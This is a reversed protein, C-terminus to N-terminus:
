RCTKMWDHPLQAMWDHTGVEYLQWGELGPNSLNPPDGDTAVAPQM